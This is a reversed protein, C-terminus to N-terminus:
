NYSISQIRIQTSYPVTCCTVFKDTGTMGNPSYLSIASLHTDNSNVSFGHAFSLCSLHKNRKNFQPM